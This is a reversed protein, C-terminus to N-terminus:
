FNEGRNILWNTSSSIFLGRAEPGRELASQLTYMSQSAHTISCRVHLYLSRHCLMAFSSQILIHAM